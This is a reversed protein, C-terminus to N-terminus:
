NMSQNKMLEWPPILDKTMKNYIVQEKDTLKLDKPHKMDKKPINDKCECTVGYECNVMVGAVRLNKEVTVLGRNNCYLCMIKAGM